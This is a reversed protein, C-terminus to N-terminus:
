PDKLDLHHEPTEEHLEAWHCSNWAPIKSGAPIKLQVFHPSRFEWSIGADGAKDIDDDKPQAPLKTLLAALGTEQRVADANDM